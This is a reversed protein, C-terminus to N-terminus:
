KRTLYAELHSIWPVLAAMGGWVLLPYPVESTLAVALTMLGTIWVSMCWYCGVLYELWFPVWSAPPIGAEEDGTLKERVWLIPPFNDEVLLRTLRYASLTMLVFTFAFSV